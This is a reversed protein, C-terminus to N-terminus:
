GTAEAADSAAVDQYSWVQDQVFEKSGKAAICNMTAFGITIFKIVFEAIFIIITFKAADVPVVLTQRAKQILM